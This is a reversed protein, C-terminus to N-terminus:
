PWIDSRQRRMKSVFTFIGEKKLHEFEVFIEIDEFNTTSISLSRIYIDGQQSSFGSATISNPSMTGVRYGSRDFLSGNEIKLLLYNSLWGLVCGSSFKPWIWKSYSVHLTLNSDFQNLVVPDKEKESSCLIDGNLFLESKGTWATRQIDEQGFANHFTLLISLTILLKM